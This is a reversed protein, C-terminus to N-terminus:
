TRILNCLRSAPSFTSLNSSQSPQLQWFIRHDGAMYFGVSSNERWRPFAKPKFTSTGLRSSAWAIRAKVDAATKAGMPGMIKPITNTKKARKGVALLVLFCLRQQYLM